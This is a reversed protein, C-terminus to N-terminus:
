KKRNGANVVRYVLLRAVTNIFLTIILLILAIYTLSQTQIGNPAERYKNALLTTMTNASGLLSWGFENAQPLLMAVAMTEGIARALGLAIAGFIGGKAFSLVVKTAQWWTAGVGYAGQELEKPVVRLVDRTIATIIPIVMIALVVSATLMGQGSGGGEVLNAPFYLTEDTFSDKGIAIWHWTGVSDHLWDVPKFWGLWPQLVTGQFLRGQMLPVVVAIGWLGYVISPVAALLEILFSVGEVLWSAWRGGTWKAARPAIRVLFIAAGVSIPVAIALAIFATIATGVIAGFAGYVDHTPDWERGGMFSWGFRRMAPWSGQLLVVAMIALLALIVVAGAYSAVITTGDALKRLVINGGRTNNPPSLSPTDAVVSM